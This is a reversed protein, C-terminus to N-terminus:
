KVLEFSAFYEPNSDTVDNACPHNGLHGVQNGVVEIRRVPHHLHDDGQQDHAEWNGQKQGPREFQRGVADPSRFIALNLARQNDAVLGNKCQNAAQEDNQGDHKVQSPRAAVFGDGYQGEFINTRATVLCVECIAHCILQAELQLM